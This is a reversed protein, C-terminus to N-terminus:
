TYLGDFWAKDLPIFTNVSAALQAARGPTAAFVKKGYVHRVAEVAPTFDGDATLLYAVDYDNKQAMVIMDVAIMVDVAKEAWVRVRKFRQSLNMLAQFIDKPIPTALNQLYRRLELACDDPAPHWEFRGLHTSIKPDAARLQALFRRQDAYIQVGMVQSVQGIYYRTGLWDRPGVLKSSIKRYDLYGQHTVGAEELSHYWNNGDIFIVAREHQPM